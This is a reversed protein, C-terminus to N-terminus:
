KNEFIELGKSFNESFSNRGFIIDFSTATVSMQLFISSNPTFEAYFKARNLSM